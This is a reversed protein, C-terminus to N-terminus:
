IFVESVCTASPIHRYVIDAAVSTSPATKVLTLTYGVGYERKLFLSRIIRSDSKTSAKSATAVASIRGCCKLSGNAMIAIRDGLVDAEDMSHTTLLIIRGKKIKKILQWTLRMSYPDMGSTPEDLVIVKSDGILAIGLSLKRKMGGSLARVVTNVKDALGVDDIMENVVSELSDEKVGKLSAFIELHEKVTLESFLIDNQPCVGLGKRIEDMDTLINKGLVLADGSTPSLLGVLMSITTSKGAGNHGLLALIQNEYLTLQLSKVACCTGKKTTYVKRLNRMQICRGDLEQQKMELSIAEVVRESFSAKDLYLGIACYLLTDLFMMLLCVLFNVGSSPQWINSWRLGVHAREYDAFNVTGLAFATPSLLSAIVKLIMSSSQDNVTYYPYFAGLFSLTGVAVATKARTFFTSILFSLMIASLGFLFFYVFVVSKDSYEFLTGITCLTIIVSSIAFQLAYTIFWSLYFIGDKLGMMYLGEKIKQEKEFVSYSILRSVPYLFGLLYLVGMVKKIISQFEDDTYERTPFPALRINSPSFQTWPIELLSPTGFSDWSSSGTDETDLVTATKQSAYIIFSDMVQQLTLFGSFGYQMISITDVGLELDNLYPGDIDMISKVDPFGSFAWTHNLRISYDFLEPGQDHFIIAGKIKPNPCNEVENCVGYLDSRIYTEFELEDKYVRSVLKLLPFKISLINIMMSTENTDPTFALYEGEALLSELVQNFTPSIDGKGVEVFMEKRIYPQAPHIRTDVQTRVAILMLMVVTPLLIEACTVCPHRIKILWNKRLMVKLQRQSTGM